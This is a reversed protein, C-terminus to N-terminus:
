LLASGHREIGIGDDIAAAHPALEGEPADARQQDHEDRQNACADRQHGAAPQQRAAVIDGADGHLAQDATVLIADRRELTEAARARTGHDQM